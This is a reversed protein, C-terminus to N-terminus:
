LGIDEYVEDFIIKAITRVHCSKDLDKVIKEKTFNVPVKLEVATFLYSIKKVKTSDINDGSLHLGKYTFHYGNEKAKVFFSHLRAETFSVTADIRFRAFTVTKLTVDQYEKYVPLAEKTSAKVKKNSEKKAGRTEKPNLAKKAM